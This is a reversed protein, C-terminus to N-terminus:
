GPRPPSAASARPVYEAPVSVVTQRAQEHTVKGVAIDVALRVAAAGLMGSRYSVSSLAPIASSAFHDDFGIVSIDRGPHLGRERMWAYFGLAVFDNWCVAATATPRRPIAAEIVRTWFGISDEVRSFSRLASGPLNIKSLQLGLEKARATVSEERDASAAQAKPEVGIWLLRTHGLAALHSVAGAFGPRADLRVTPVRPPPDAANLVVPPISLRHWMQSAEGGLVVIGDARGQSLCAESAQVPQGRGSLLIVEYGAKLAEDEAGVVIPGWFYGSEAGLEPVMFGLTFSRGAALSRAAFHPIYNLKRAADRVRRVVAPTIKLEEARGTLVYSVSARTVGALAAVDNQTVRRPRSQM